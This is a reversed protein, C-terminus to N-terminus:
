SIICSSIQQFLVICFVGGHRLALREQVPVRALAHVLYLEGLRLAVHVVQDALILLVLLGGDVLFAFEVFLFLRAISFSGFVFEKM